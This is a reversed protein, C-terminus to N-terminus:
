TDFKWSVNAAQDPDFLADLKELTLLLVRSDRDGATYTVVVVGDQMALGSAFAFATQGDDDESALARLPLQASVQLVQFPPRDSFRYAFHGYEKTSPRKVHFLALFHSSSLHPTSSPHDIFVAQGSGSIVYEPHEKQLRVLPLHSSLIHSGCGTPAGTEEDYHVKMVAHPSISYVFHLEGRWEFPIWNKEARQASGCGLWHGFAQVNPMNAVLGLALYMQPWVKGDTPCGGAFNRPQYSVFAVDASQSLYNQSWFVKPDEPGTVVLRMLTRNESIYWKRACLDKWAHTERPISLGSWRKLKALHPRIGTNMWYRLDLAKTSMSTVVIDSHWIEDICTVAEGKYVCNDQRRERSRRHARAVLVFEYPGLSLSPNILVSRELGDALIPL